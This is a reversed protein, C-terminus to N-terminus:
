PAAYLEKILARRDIPDALDSLPVIDVALIGKGALQNNIKYCCDLVMNNQKEKAILAEIFIVEGMWPFKKIEFQEIESLLCTQKFESRVETLIRAAELISELILTGPLIGRRGLPEELSYEEFSVAKQAAISQDGLSIVKDLFSWRM